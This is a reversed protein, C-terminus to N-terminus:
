AFEGEGIQLLREGIKEVDNQFVCLEGGGDFPFGGLLDFIGVALRDQHEIDKCVREFNVQCTPRDFSIFRILRAAQLLM